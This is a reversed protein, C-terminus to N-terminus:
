WCIYGCCCCVVAIVVIVVIIVVFVIAIPVHVGGVDVFSVVIAAM